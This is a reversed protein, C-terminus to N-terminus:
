GGKPWIREVLQTAIAFVLGFAGVIGAIYGMSRSRWGELATIRRDHEAFTESVHSIQANWRELAGVRETAQELKSSIVAVSAALGPVVVLEEVIKDLKTNMDQRQTAADRGQQELRGIIQWLERDTPAPPTM